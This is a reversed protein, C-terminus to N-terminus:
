GYMLPLNYGKDEESYLRSKQLLEKSRLKIENGMQKLSELDVQPGGIRAMAELVSSSAEPDPLNQFSQSLIVTNVLRLRIAERMIFAFPGAIVGEEMLNLGNAKIQERRGRDSCAIFVEPKELEVRNEVAIGGLTYVENVNHAKLWQMTTKIIASTLSPPLPTESLLIHAEKSVFIRTTEKPVGEHLVMIPPLSDSDLYGIEKAKLHTTLYSTSISGVLGIDPLGIIATSPNYEPREIEVMTAIRDAM